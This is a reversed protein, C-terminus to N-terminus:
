GGCAGAWRNFSTGVVVQVGILVLRGYCTPSQGPAFLKTVPSRTVLKFQDGTQRRWRGVQVGTLVGRRRLRVGTLVGWRLLRPKQRSLQMYPFRQSKGLLITYNLYFYLISSLLHVSHGGHRFCSCLSNNKTTSAALLAYVVLVSIAARTWFLVLLGVALPTHLM